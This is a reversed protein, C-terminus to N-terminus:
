TKETYAEFERESIGMEEAAEAITIRGSMVFRKLMTLTKEREEERGEERGEEKFMQMTETENYESLCMDKVEARNSILYDKILFGAPMDDLTKDVAEEIGITKMRKRIGDVFWSYEKLPECNKLIDTNTDTQINIMKVCVQVDSAERDYDM